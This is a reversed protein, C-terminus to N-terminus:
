QIIFDYTDSVVEELTSLIVYNDKSDSDSIIPVDIGNCTIKEAKLYAPTNFLLESTNDGTKTVTIKLPLETVTESTLQVEEGDSFASITTPLTLYLDFKANATKGQYSARVDITHKGPVYANATVKAGDWSTALGTEVPTYVVASVTAKDTIANGNDYIFLPISLSMRNNEGLEFAMAKTSCIITLPSANKQLAEIAATNDQIRDQNDDVRQTLSNTAQQAANATSLATDAKKNASQATDNASQATSKITSVSNEITTVRSNINNTSLTANYLDVNNIICKWLNTNALSITKDSAVALPAKDSFNNYLAQFVCGYMTVQNNTYYVTDKNYEGRHKVISGITLIESGPM